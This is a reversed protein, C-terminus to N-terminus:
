ETIGRAQIVEQRCQELLKEDDRLNILKREVDLEKRKIKRFQDVAREPSVLNHEIDFWLMDYDGRIQIWVGLLDSTAAIVKKFNLIPLIVAILTAFVSLVQWVLEAHRWIGWAAVTSSATIALFIEAWKQRTYYRQALRDWYCCNYDATLMSDWVEERIGVQNEM